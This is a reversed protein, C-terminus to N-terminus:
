SHGHQAERTMVRKGVGNETGEHLRRQRRLSRFTITVLTGAMEFRLPQYSAHNVSQYSVM